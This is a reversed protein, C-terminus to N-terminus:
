NKIEYYNILSSLGNHYTDGRTQVSSGTNRVYSIKNDPIKTSYSDCKYGCNSCTYTTYIGGMQYQHFVTLIKGCKPCINNITGIRM